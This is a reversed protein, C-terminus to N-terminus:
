PHLRQPTRPLFTVERINDLGTLNLLARSLGFGFGGHPPCGNRFFDLYFQTGAGLGAEEAQKLLVAHRHERQAGTTVELGNWLLDFSKTLNPNDAHRMHYFPRLSKPYDTIFVFQHSNRNEKVWQGVIREGEADLDGKDPITHGAEKVIELAQKHTLKPFPAEPIELFTQLAEHDKPLQQLTSILWDEEFAMVDHHSDIWSIEVDVSTFETNHRPTMSPEARFVPGIEFVKDFGAAMAMQKYFQPSQALYAKRGFYETEFLDAGSESPSGMLKPSHIEIFQHGIWYNRMAHELMTQLEFIARREPLRLDLYRWNFRQNINSEDHHLKIDIPLHQDVVPSIVEISPSVLEIGSTQSIPNSVVTGTIIVASEVRLTSILQNLQAKDKSKSVFIQVEGSHDRIRLFQVRKQDRLVSVWGKITVRKDVECPLTSILKRTM